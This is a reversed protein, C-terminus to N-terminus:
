KSIISLTLALNSKFTLSAKCILRLFGIKFASCFGIDRGRERYSRGGGGGVGKRKQRQKNKQTETEDTIKM